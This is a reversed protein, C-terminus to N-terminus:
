ELREMVLSVLRFNLCAGNTVWRLSVLMLFIAEKWPSQRSDMWRGM